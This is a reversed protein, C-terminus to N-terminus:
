EEFTICFVEHDDGQERSQITTITIPTKFRESLGELLGIVMPALGQRQSRYHLLASHEDTEEYTFIPPVLHPFSLSVRAHLNPLNQLFEHLTMGTHNLLEGYGENATYLMWYRGFTRLLEAHSHGLTMSAGDVLNYTMADPYEHMSLFMEIEVGAHAKIHEWIEANFHSCVMQEMGKNVLGYM